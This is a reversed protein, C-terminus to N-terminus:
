PMSYEAPDLPVVNLVQVGGEPDAALFLVAYYNVPEETVTAAHCLVAYETGAIVKTGLLAAPVYDVGLLSGAAADFAAQADWPLEAPETQDPISWGGDPYFTPIQADTKAELEALDLDKMNLVSVNSDLDEYVTLICLGKEATEALTSGCLFQYNTGAVVQNALYAEPTLIRDWIGAAAAEFVAKVEEPLEYSAAADSITWGGLLMEEPVPETEPIM